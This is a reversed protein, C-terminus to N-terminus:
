EFAAVERELYTQHANRGALADFDALHRWASQDLSDIASQLDVGQEIAEDMHTMLTTLYEYTSGEFEGLKAPEGHGPVFIANDFTRLRDFATIWADVRSVPLIALLRGGYLVDGAYVVKDEVVEVVMSGATHATGVPVVNLTVGGLSLQTIQKVTREPSGPPQIAGPAAGTMEEATRAMAEGEDAIRPAAEEAALVTAGKRRFAANGLIRHPQSDTNIVYAVPQETIRRIQELMARAMDDGYGSDIVAVADDGVVFGLNMRFGQNERTPPGYPGIWAWAHESVRIPEPLTDGAGALVPLFLAVVAIGRCLAGWRFLQDIVLRRARRKGSQKGVLAYLMTM